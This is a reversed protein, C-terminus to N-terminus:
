PDVRGGNHQCLRMRCSLDIRGSVVGGVACTLGKLRRGFGVDCLDWRQEKDRKLQFNQQQKWKVQSISHGNKVNNVKMSICLM